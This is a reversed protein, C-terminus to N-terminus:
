RVEGAKVFFADLEVRVAALAAKDEADLGPDPVMFQDYLRWAPGASAISDRLRADAKGVCGGGLIVLLALAAVIKAM